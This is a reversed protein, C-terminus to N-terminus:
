AIVYCRNILSLTIGKTTATITMIGSDMNKFDIDCSMGNMANMAIQPKSV